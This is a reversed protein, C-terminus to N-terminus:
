DLYLVETGPKIESLERLIVNSFGVRDWIRIANLELQVIEMAAAHNEAMITLTDTMAAIPGYQYLAEYFTM